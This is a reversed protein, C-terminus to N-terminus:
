NVNYFMYLVFYSSLSFLLNRLILVVKHSTLISILRLHELDSIYNLSVAAVFFFMRFALLIDRGNQDLEPM